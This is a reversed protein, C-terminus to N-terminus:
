IQQQKSGVKLSLSFRLRDKMFIKIRVKTTTRARVPTAAEVWIAEADAWVLTVTDFVLAMGIGM